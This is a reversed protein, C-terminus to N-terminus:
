ATGEDAYYIDPTVQITCFTGDRTSHKFPVLTQSTSSTDRKIFTPQLNCSFHWNNTTSTSMFSVEFQTAQQLSTLYKELRVWSMWSSSSLYPLIHDLLSTNFPDTGCRSDRLFKLTLPLAMNKRVLEWSPSTKRNLVTSHFCLATSHFGDLDLSVNKFSSSSKDQNSCKRFAKLHELRCSHLLWFRRDLMYKYLCVISFYHIAWYFHARQIWTTEIYKSFLM